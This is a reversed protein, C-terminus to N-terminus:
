GGYSCSGLYSTLWSWLVYRGTIRKVLLDDEIAFEIVSDLKLGNKSLIEKLQLLLFCFLRVSGIYEGLPTTMHYTCAHPLLYQVRKLLVLALIFICAVLFM